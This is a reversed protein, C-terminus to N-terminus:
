SDDANSQPNQLDSLKGSADFKKLYALINPNILGPRIEGILELVSIGEREVILSRAIASFGILVVKIVAMTPLNCVLM